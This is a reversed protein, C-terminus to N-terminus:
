VNWIKSIEIAAGYAHSSLKMYDFYDKDNLSSSAVDKLVPKQSISLTAIRTHTSDSNNRVIEIYQEEGCEGNNLLYEINGIKTKM